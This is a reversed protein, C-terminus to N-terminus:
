LLTGASTGQSQAPCVAGRAIVVPVVATLVVSMWLLDWLLRLLVCKEAKRCSIRFPKHDAMHVTDGTHATSLLAEGPAGM